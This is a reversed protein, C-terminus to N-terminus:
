RVADEIRDMAIKLKEVPVAYCLRIHGEGREGFIGGPVTVVKGKVLLNRTFELASQGFAEINPFAYFAGKPAYCRFGTINGLREILYRRRKDYEGVMKRVSDQSGKLAALAARQAIAPANAVTNQQIKVMAACIDASAVAYGIRWGTMAYSKSFSNITVTLNEMGSISAPSLHKCDEYILKEYVEDSIVFLNHRKAIEVIAKIDEEAMVSGTPNMPNNLIIGKTRPGVRKEVEDPLLRFGMERLPVPVTKGGALMVCPEYTLFCPDTILIEDGADVLAHIALNIAGAGGITVIIEKNPDVDIGNERKLKEAIAERLDLFGANPTYHTYGEDLAQKAAKVIHSPTVFDPEGIGLNIVDETKQALDFLERIGSSKINAAKMSLNPESM